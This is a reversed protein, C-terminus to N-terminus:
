KLNRYMVYVDLLEPYSKLPIVEGYAQRNDWYAAGIGYCFVERTGKLVPYGGVCPFNTTFVKGNASYEKATAEDAIIHLLNGKDIYAYNTM